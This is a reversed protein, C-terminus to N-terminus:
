TPPTGSRPRPEPRRTQPPTSLEQPSTPRLDEQLGVVDHSEQLWTRLEHDLDTESRIRVHHIRWRPGYDETKVIRPSALWRHLAFNAMFGNQRPTLGAFRVRAVCVLRTKQAIVQVDGLSHLMAVYARALALSEPTSRVFLADLSSNGCSHWLNPTVLRAGCRPCIWVAKLGDQPEGPENRSM